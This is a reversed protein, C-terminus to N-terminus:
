EASIIWFRMRVLHWPTKDGTATIGSFRIQVIIARQGEAPLAYNKDTRLQYKHDILFIFLGGNNFSACVILWRM